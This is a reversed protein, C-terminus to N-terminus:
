SILDRTKDTILGEFIKNKTVRLSEFDSKLDDHSNFTTNNYVDIDIIYPLYNEIPQEFTQSILAQSNPNDCPLQMQLFYKSFSQPMGEPITPVSTFYNEFQLSDLPIEFKNIYRLAIRKVFKPKAYDLYVKWFRFALDSFEEWTTYPALFNCTFGDTRFQIKKNQSENSFIYGTLNTLGSSSFDEKKVNLEIAGEFTVRKKAIPFESLITDKLSEINKVDTIETSDVRIDFIAEVIPANTYKM